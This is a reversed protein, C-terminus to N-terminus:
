TIINKTLDFVMEMIALLGTEKNFLAGYNHSSLNIKFPSPFNYNSCKKIIIM